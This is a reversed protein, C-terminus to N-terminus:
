SARCASALLNPDVKQNVQSTVSFTRSLRGDPTGVGLQAYGATNGTHGYVVGCRTTYEFIALGTRNAGPGRAPRSPPAARPSACGGRCEGTPARHCVWAVDMARLSHLSSGLVLVPAADPM